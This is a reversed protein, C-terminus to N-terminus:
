EEEWYSAAASETEWVTVRYIEVAFKEKMKGYIYRAINEATPNIETFEPLENIFIHDLRGLIERLESRASRFDIAMGIDGLKSTRLAVQVSYTHGHLQECNGPYGRLCHAADFKEEILIEFM